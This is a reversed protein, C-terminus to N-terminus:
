QLSIGCNPVMAEVLQQFTRRDEPITFAREPIVYFEGCSNRLLIVSGATEAAAIYKWNMTVSTTKTNIQVAGPSFAYSQPARLDENVKWHKRDSSAALLPSLVWWGVLLTVSVFALWGDWAITPDTLARGALYVLALVALARWLWPFRGSRKARLRCIAFQYEDHTLTFNIRIVPGGLEDINM